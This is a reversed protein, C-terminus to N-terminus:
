KSCKLEEVAKPLMEEMSKALLQMDSMSLCSLRRQVLFCLSLLEGIIADADGSSAREVEIVIAGPGFSM